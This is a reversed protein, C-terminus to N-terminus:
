ADFSWHVRDCSNNLYLFHLKLYLAKCIPNLHDVNINKQSSLCEYNLTWEKWKHIDDGCTALLKHFTSLIYASFDAHASEITINLDVDINKQLNLVLYLQRSSDPPNFYNDVHFLTVRDIVSQGEQNFKSGWLRAFEAIFRAMDAHLELRSIIFDAKYRNWNELDEFAELAIKIIPYKVDHYMGTSQIKKMKFIFTNKVREQLPIDIEQKKESVAGRPTGLASPAIELLSMEIMDEMMESIYKSFPFERSWCPTTVTMDKNRNVLQLDELSPLNSYDILIREFLECNQKNIEPLILDTDDETEPYSNLPAEVGYPNNDDMAQPFNTEQFLTDLNLDDNM